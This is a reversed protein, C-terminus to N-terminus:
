KKNMNRKAIIRYLSAMEEASLGSSQKIRRSTLLSAAQISMGLERIHDLLSDHGRLKFGAAVTAILGEASVQALADRL